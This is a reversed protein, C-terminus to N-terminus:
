ITQLRLGLEKLKNPVSDQGLTHQLGLAVFYTGGQSLLSEIRRAWEINRRVQENQYLLPFKRRMNDITRSNNTGEIWDYKDTRKGSEEDSLYDLLFELREGAEAESMGIFYNMADDDTAFESKVSKGTEFAMKSLVVDAYNEIGLNQKGIKALYAGNLIFYARWVPVHELRDRAVGYKEAAALLRASLEPKLVSFLSRDLDQPPPAKAAPPKPPANPNPPPTEFWVEKSEDFAARITPTLWSWDKAESFGLIYVQGGPKQVKYLAPHAKAWAPVTGGAFTAAYGGVAGLGLLTTRRNFTM